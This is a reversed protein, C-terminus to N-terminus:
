HKDNDDDEVKDDEEEVIEDDKNNVAKMQPSELEKDLKSIIENGIQIVDSSSIIRTTRHRGQQSWNSSM